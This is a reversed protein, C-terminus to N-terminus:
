ATRKAYRRGDIQQQLPPKPSFKRGSDDTDAQQEAMIGTIGGFVPATRLAPANFNREGDTQTMSIGVRLTSNIKSDQMLYRRIIGRGDEEEDEGLDVYEALNM